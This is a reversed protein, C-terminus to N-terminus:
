IRTSLTTQLPFFTFITYDDLQFITLKLDFSHLFMANRVVLFHGKAIPNSLNANVVRNLTVNGGFRLMPRDASEPSPVFDM